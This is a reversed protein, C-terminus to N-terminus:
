FNFVASLAFTDVHDAFDFAFDVQFRNMALGLGASFHVDDDGQPLLAQLFPDDITAYVQHDPELWTGLRLAIIPTSDIFVYEAGLHLTDIDDVTQDDLELSQAINSYTVHDWQFSITLRGSAARYAFGLGYSDPFEVPHGVNRALVNGPPVGFDILQGAIAETNIKFEPAQRYVGGISWSDSLRWLLGGTLAWDADNISGRESVISREPLYSNPGFISALTDDDTSYQAASTQVSADTYVVGLGLDVRDSLRYATAVGYSVIELDSTVRQDYERVQCCVTGGGFLGQTEGMFELDALEHRYFALTWKGVPFAFSLFSIGSTSYESSLRHIGVTDDIGNGSPLNEIRGNHTYPTSHSWHRAEISVEPKLLQTLGAPNSIAATADDALGVFAGGLGMSRAGPDSFSLQMPVISQQATAQVPLLMGALLLAVVGGYGFAQKVSIAM